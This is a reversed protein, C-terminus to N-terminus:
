IVNAYTLYKESINFTNKYYENIEKRRNMCDYCPIGIYINKIKTANSIANKLDDTLSNNSHTWNDTNTFTEGQLIMYEGDSPRILAFSENRKIKDLFYHLHEVSNQRKWINLEPEM